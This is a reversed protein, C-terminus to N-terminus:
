SEENAACSCSSGPRGDHAPVLDAPRPQLQGLARDGGDRAAAREDGRCQARPARARRRPLGHDRPAREPAVVAGPERRVRPDRRARRAGARRHRRRRAGGAGRARRAREAGVGSLELGLRELADRNEEATAVDLAEAQFVAPVLLSQRQVAGADLNTKLKEMVIREHAAHMDVLVLGAENQALIYVGHLQALAYGLPPAKERAPCHVSVRMFSEILLRPSPSASPRRSRRVTDPVAAYRSRRKRPARRSRASCRTTSSSTSRARIASACRPRPRTCTSTSAARISRSSCCTPRSASATCCSASLSRAGRAVAPPRARLPRQRLLVARRRARAGGAAHRRPRVPAARGGANGSRSSHRLFGDGLLAAARERSRSARLVHSSVRGNHKLMFAIGPTRSRSAGSCRTAIASSPRRPACSSAGRRRISTSTRCRSPPARRARRPSCRASSRAKPRSRRAMRRTARAAPSPRAAVGLRDLRAGRRPIGHTAM